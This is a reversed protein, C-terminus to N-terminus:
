RETLGRSLMRATNVLLRATGDIKFITVKCQDRHEASFPAIRLLRTRGRLRWDNTLRLTTAIEIIARPREQGLTFGCSGVIDAGLGPDYWGRGQYHLVTSVRVTTGDFRVTFPEREAAFASHM